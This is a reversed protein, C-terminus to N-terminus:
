LTFGRQWKFISGVLTLKKRFHGFHKNSVFSSILCFIPLCPILDKKFFNVRLIQYDLDILKTIGDWPSTTKNIM